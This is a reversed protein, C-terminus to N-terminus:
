SVTSTLDREGIDIEDEEDSTAIQDERKSSAIKDYDDVDVFPDAQSALQMLNIAYM